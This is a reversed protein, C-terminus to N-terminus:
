DGQAIANVSIELPVPVEDKRLGTLTWHSTLLRDQPSMWFQQVLEPYGSLRETLLCELPLGVLESASYALTTEVARTEFVITGEASVVVAGYIAAELTSCVLTLSDVDPKALISRTSRHDENM